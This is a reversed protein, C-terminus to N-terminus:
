NQELRVASLMVGMIFWYERMIVIKDLNVDFVGTAQMGIWILLGAIGCHQIMNNKNEAAMKFLKCLFIAHLMCYSILGLIGGQAMQQIINNHPHTFQYQFVPALDNYPGYCAQQWQEQGVGTLPYDLFMAFSAKWM